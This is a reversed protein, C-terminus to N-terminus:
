GGRSRKKFFEKACATDLAIREYLADLDAFREEPRLFRLFEVTIQEGYLQGTYDLLYSEIVTQEGSVTPCVGVNSVANFTGCPTHVLTFYVGKRMPTRGHPYPINATPYGRTRGLHKGDKVSGRVTYARGLLLAADEARGESLAARVATSSVTLDGAKQEPVVETPLLACLEAAGAARGRGFRFDYGCVAACVGFAEKIHDVFESAEMHRIDDLSLTHVEAAGAQRLLEEREAMDTIPEGDRHVVVAVVTLRDVASLENARAFLARHGIHVGDFTGLVARTKM